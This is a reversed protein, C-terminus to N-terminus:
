PYSVIPADLTAAPSAHRRRIQRHRWLARLVVNRVELALTDQRLEDRVTAVINALETLSFAAGEFTALAEDYAARAAEARQQSDDRVFAEFRSLRDAAVPTLEQQCLVCVSGSETVPFRRSPYAQEESFARASAWLAQWVESGMQPLPEDRFLAASAAEAARRAADSEGALSRLRSAGDDTVSAFLRDLRAVYAEVKGKLAELQRAARVPDGALDGTL